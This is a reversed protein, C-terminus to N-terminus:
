ALAPSLPEPWNGHTLKVFAVYPTKIFRLMIAPGPTMFETM